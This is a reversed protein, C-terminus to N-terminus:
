AEPARSPCPLDFGLYAIGAGGFESKFTHLTANLRCDGGVTSRGFDFFRAGAQTAEGICADFVADLAHAARGEPSAAIYQAHWAREGRFLVSGALPREGAYAVHVSITEPWRDILAAIEGLSHTPQVQHSSALNEELIPWLAATLGAGTRVEIGNARAQRLGRRRRSNLPCRSALDITSALDCSVLVAGLAFLAHLDDEAPVRHYIHPVAKYLLRRCGTAALQASVAELADIARRGLLGGEHFMGGFTAGPHSVATAPDDPDRAAPLAGAIRGRDRVVVSVDEFRQRHGTLFRRTHLFTAMPARGALADWEAADEEEYPTAVLGAADSPATARSSTM